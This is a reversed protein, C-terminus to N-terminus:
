EGTWLKDLTQKANVASDFRIDYGIIKSYTNKRDILSDITDGIEILKKATPKTHSNMLENINVLVEHIQTELYDSITVEIMKKQKDDAILPASDISIGEISDFMSVLAILGSYCTSPVFYLGGGVKVSLGRLNGEISKRISERIPLSHLMNNNDNVFDNVKDKIADLMSQMWLSLDPKDSWEITKRAKNFTATSIVISESLPGKYPKAILERTVLEENYGLDRMLFDWSENDNNINNKSAIDECARRFINAPKPPKMVQVPASTSEILTEFEDRSLCADKSVNYWVLFGLISIGKENLETLYKDTM